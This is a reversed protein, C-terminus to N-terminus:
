ISLPLDVADFPEPRVVEEGGHAGILSYLENSLRYIELSEGAPDVIWAHPVGHRAYKPLKKVQDFRPRSVSTVECVWDPALDFYATSPWVPMRERRWGAIDPVLVDAGLHIEPEFVIWWGGRGGDGDDFWRSLHAFLSGAARAHRPGPRPSVILQGDVLEGM